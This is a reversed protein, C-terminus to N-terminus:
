YTITGSATVHAPADNGLSGGFTVVWTGEGTAEAFRGTGGTFRYPGEAIVTGDPNFLIVVDTLEGDLIDGNAATLTFVSNVVAPQVCVNVTEYAAFSIAGLHTAVGTATPENVLSCFPDEPDPGVINANGDMEAHFPTTTPSEAWSVGSFSLSAAIIWLHKTM